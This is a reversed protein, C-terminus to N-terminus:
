FRRPQAFSRIEYPLEYALATPSLGFVWGSNGGADTNNQDIYAIWTAGGTAAIDQVVLNTATVTGSAQSLTAQSGALSSRLTKQSTGSTAFAGVTSTASNKLAVTGNTLTFARTSGQTLADQFTWTGGAGSFTLPMDFTKGATTVTQSTTAAFTTTLAGATITMGSSVTFSGFVTRATNSLTGAFGTFNVNRANNQVVVTDTGATVSLSVSNAESTAGGNFTRTGTSGSNTAEVLADGTVTLNTSTSTNWIAINNRTAVFKGASGFSVARINANTSSFAGCTFVNGNLDLTGATLTVTRTAGTTMAGSLQWSGGAANFTINSDLAIGNSTLVNAIAGDFTIAGTYTLTMTASLTIGGSINLASSGAFTGTFGSFSLNQCAAAASVTVTNAGSAADFYVDDAATPVPEGGPGNSTLAWKTGATADWSATGGVWYRDPM